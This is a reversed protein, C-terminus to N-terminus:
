LGIFNNEFKIDIKEDNNNENNDEKDEDEDDDSTDSIEIIFDTSPAPEFEQKIDSQSDIFHQYNGLDDTAFLADPAVTYSSIIMKEPTLINTDTEEKILVEEERIYTNSRTSIHSQMRRTFQHNLACDDGRSCYQDEEYDPCNWVHLFPCNKGRPCWSGISFQRCVWIEYNPDNYYEPMNHSYNCQSNHCKNELKYRCLPANHDNSNHSLICNPDSCVGNLYHPCIRIKAVDHDYKCNERSNQIKYSGSNQKIYFENNWVIQDPANSPISIIPLLVRGNKAVAYKTGNLYIRDCFDSLSKNKAIKSKTHEKIKQQKIEDLANQRLIATQRLRGNEQRFISMNFLTMGNRSQITVYQQQQQPQQQQQNIHAQSSSITTSSGIEVGELPLHSNPLVNNMVLTMNPFTRREPIRRNFSSHGHFKSIRFDQIRQKGKQKMQKEHIIKKLTAIEKYMARVEASDVQNQSM